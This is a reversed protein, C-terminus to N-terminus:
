RAPRAHARRCAVTASYGFAASLAYVAGGIISTVGAARTLTVGLGCGLEDPNCHDPTSVALGGAVGLGAALVTDIIPSM